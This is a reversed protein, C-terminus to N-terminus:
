RPAGLFRDPDGVARGYVATWRMLPAAGAVNYVFQQFARGVPADFTEVPEGRATETVIHLQKGAFGSLRGKSFASVRVDHGGAHVVVERGLGNYIVMTSEGVAAGLLLIGA